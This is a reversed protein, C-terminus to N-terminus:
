RPGFMAHLYAEDLPASPTTGCTADLEDLTTRDYRRRLLAYGDSFPVARRLFSEWATPEAQESVVQLDVWPVHSALAHLWAVVLTDTPHVVHHTRVGPCPPTRVLRVMADAAYEVPVLNLVADPAACFRATIRGSAPMRLGARDAAWLPGRAALAALWSGVAAHPNRPGRPTPARGTVLVSPRLVTVSADHRSAWQRVLVEAQYKSEEYANLFGDSDDLEDEAVTGTRRGGAVFATSVHVLRVPRDAAGALELVRRTGEVNTRGLVPATARPDTTAASHWITTLGAALRQHDSKGLGLRPQDLDIRVLRLRGGLHRLDADTAGAATLARTVRPMMAAPDRRALVVVSLDERLMRLLLHSGLFGTAGTLAVSM